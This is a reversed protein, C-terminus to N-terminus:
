PLRRLGPPQYRGDLLQADPWYLRAVIQFPGDPTPLWNAVPADDPAQHQLYLNLSGDEGVHLDRDRDGIKYRGSPHPALLRTNADYVTFSWFGHVPPRQPFPLQYRAGHSGDLPQGDSDCDLTMYVCEAAEPGWIAYRALVARRLFADDSGAVLSRPGRLDLPYIWGNVPAGLRQLRQQIRQYGADIGAQLATRQEDPLDDADFARGPGIGIQAFREMLAYESPHIQCLVLVFNLYAIFQPSRAEFMRPNGDPALWEIPPPPPPPPQGCWASLTQLQCADQLRHLEDWDEDAGEVLIRAFLKLLWSEGRVVEDIGAPIEGHWDPGVILYTRSAPGHTRSGRNLINHTYLDNIQINHFRHPPFEATTLVVPEARLDLWSSSYVTDTNVWPIYNNFTPTALERFHKWRNVPQRESAPAAHLQLYTLGYAYVPAYAYLYAQEAIERIAELKLM